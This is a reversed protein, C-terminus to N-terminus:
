VEYNNTIKNATAQLNDCITEFFDQYSAFRISSYEKEKISQRAVMKNVRTKRWMFIGLIARWVAWSVTLVPGFLVLIGSRIV